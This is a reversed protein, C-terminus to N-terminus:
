SEAKLKGSKRAGREGFKLTEANRFKLKEKGTM